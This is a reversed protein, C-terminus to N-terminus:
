ADISVVPRRIGMISIGVAIKRFPILLLTFSSSLVGGHSVLSGRPDAAVEGCNVVDLCQHYETPSKLPSNQFLRPPLFM